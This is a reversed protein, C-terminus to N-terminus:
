PTAIEAIAATTQTGLPDLGFSTSTDEIAAFARASRGLSCKTVEQTTYPHQAELTLTLSLKVDQFHDSSVTSIITSTLSKPIRGVLRAAVTLQWYNEIQEGGCGSAQGSTLSNYSNSTYNEMCYCKNQNYKPGAWTFYKHGKSRCIKQCEEWSLVAGLASSYVAPGSRFDKDFEIPCGLVFIGCRRM